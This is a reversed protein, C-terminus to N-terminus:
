PNPHLNALSNLKAVARQLSPSRAVAELPRWYQRIFRCLHLNYGTGPKSLDTSSVVEDRIARSKSRKALSLLVAKPDSAEDQSSPIKNAPVQYADAFAVADAMAWSEAESVALRLIFRDPVGHPLWDRLLAVPCQGDSDAICVVPQVYRAQDCYRPLAARLKTVGRTDISPLPKQWGPLCDLVLREGFACCPADEGVVLVTPM